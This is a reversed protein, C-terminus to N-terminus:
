APTGTQVAPSRVDEGTVQYIVNECLDVACEGIQELSRLALVLDIVQGIMRSDEMLFTTLRRLDSQFWSSFEKRMELCEGAAEVDGQDFIEIAKRLHTSAARGMSTIDKLLSESPNNTQEDFLRLIFEAVGVVKVEVRGLDTVAKSMGIIARLDKAVPTRKAIVQIIDSEVHKALQRVNEDREIVERASGIEWEQLANLVGNLQDLVLGGLELVRMHANTLEADYRRMTHGELRYNM